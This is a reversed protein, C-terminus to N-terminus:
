KRLKQKEKGIKPRLMVLIRAWINKDKISPLQKGEKDFKYIVGNMSDAVYINGKGDVKIDMPFFGEVWGEVEKSKLMMLIKGESSLKTIFAKDKKHRLMFPQAIYINGEDNVDITWPCGFYLSSKSDKTGLTKILQGQPNFKLIQYSKLDGLYVNGKRDMSFDHFSFKKRYKNIPIDFLFEGQTNFVIVRDQKPGIGAKLIYINGRVDVELDKVVGLKKIDLRITEVLEGSTKFKKVSYFTLGYIIEEKKNFTVKNLMRGEEGLKSLLKGDPDVKFIPSSTLSAIYINGVNDISINEPFPFRNTFALLTKNATFLVIFWILLPLIIGSYLLGKKRTDNKVRPSILLFIISMAPTLLIVIILPLIFKLPSHHFWVPPVTVIYILHTIFLPLHGLSPLSPEFTVFCIGCLIMLVDIVLILELLCIFIVKYGKFITRPKFFLRGVFKTIEWLKKM